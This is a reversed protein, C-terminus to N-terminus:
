VLGIRDSLTFLPNHFLVALLHDSLEPIATRFWRFVCVFYLAPNDTILQHHKPGTRVLKPYWQEEVPVTVEIHTIICREDILFEYVYGREKIPFM